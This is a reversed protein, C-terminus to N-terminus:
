SFSYSGKATASPSVPYMIGGGCRIAWQANMVDLTCDSMRKQSIEIISNGSAPLTVEIYTSATGRNCTFDATVTSGNVLLQIQCGDGSSGGAAVYGCLEITVKGSPGVFVCSGTRVFAGTSGAPCDISASQWLIFSAGTTYVGLKQMTVAGDVLHTNSIAGADIAVAKVCTAGLNSALISNTKISVGDVKGDAVRDNACDYLAEWSAGTGLFMIKSNGSDAWLQYTVATTPATAGSFMSKLAAFNNEVQAMDTEVVHDTSFVDDLWNQSM